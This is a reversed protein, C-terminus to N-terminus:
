GRGAKPRSRPRSRCLDSHHEGDGLLRARLRVADASASHRAVRNCTCSTAGSWTFTVSPRGRSAVRTADVGRLEDRRGVHGSQREPVLVSVTVNWGGAPGQVDHRDIRGQHRDGDGRWRRRGRHGRAGNRRRSADRRCRRFGRRQWRRDEDRLQRVVQATRGRRVQDAGATLRRMPWSVRREPSM